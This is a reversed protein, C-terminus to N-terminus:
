LEEVGGGRGRGEKELDEVLLKAVIGHGAPRLHFVRKYSDPLLWHIGDGLGGEVEVEKGKDVFGKKPDVEWGPHEEVTRGVDRAIGAEFSGKPVDGGTRNQLATRNEGTDVTNWEYFVLGARNPSPELVRPECYRGRAKTVETDYDIFRVNPGSDGVAKFLITNVARVMDNLEQRLARTLYQKTWEVDKWVAWTVNDCTPDSAGFFTAYGTYYIVGHQQNMKPKAADLLLTVNHYLETENAIRARAETIATQCADEGSLYFQYICNSLIPTLGIDNGGASITLLDLNNQLAPIQTELIETSTSGSCALFQHTRNPNPGLLTTQLINPYSSTYRSCSWDLRTGSGLGAAYSDGISAFRQIWSFRNTPELLPSQPANKSPSSFTTARLWNILTPLLM